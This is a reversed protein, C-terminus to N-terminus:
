IRNSKNLEAEKIQKFKEASVTARAGTNPDYLRVGAKSVEAVTLKYGKYNVTTGVYTRLEIVNM